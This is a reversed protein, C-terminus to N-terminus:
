AARRGQQGLEGESGPAPRFTTGSARRATRRARMATRSDRIRALSARKLHDAWHYHRSLVALGAVITVIGPGPTVLMVAGAVLLLYGLVTEAIVRTGRWLVRM